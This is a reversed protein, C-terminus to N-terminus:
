RFPGLNLVTLTTNQRLAQALAKGDAPGLYIYAYMGPLKLETVGPPIFVKTSRSHM